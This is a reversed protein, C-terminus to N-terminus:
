AKSTMEKVVMVVDCGKRDYEDYLRDLENYNTVEIFKGDVKLGLAKLTKIENEYTM